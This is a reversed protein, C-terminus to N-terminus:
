KFYKNKLSLLRLSWYQFLHHNSAYRIVKIPVKVFLSNNKISLRNLQSIFETSCGDQLAYVFLFYLKLSLKFRHIYKLNFFDSLEIKHVYYRIDFNIKKSILSTHSVSQENIRYVTTINPLFYFKGHSALHSLLIMGEGPVCDSKYISEVSKLFDKIGYNRFLMSSAVPFSSFNEFLVDKISSKGQNYLLPSSWVAIDEHLKTSEYQKRVGTFVVSIDKNDHLVNYQLQLKNEDIWFDDGACLAIHNYNNYDRLAYFLNKVLGLNPNRRIYTIMKSNKSQYETCIDSTKDTSCDDVIIIKFPIELKQRLVSDITQSIFREQNYTIIVVLLSDLNDM